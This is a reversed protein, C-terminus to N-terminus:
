QQMRRRDSHKILTDRFIEITLGNPCYGCTAGLKSVDRINRMENDIFVMSSIPLQLQNSIENLHSVKCVDGWGHAAAATWMNVVETRGCSFEALAAKAWDPEWTRSAYGIKIDSDVLEDFIFPIDKFLSVQRRRSCVVTHRSNNVRAFPPGGTCDVEGTWLTDDLDFVIVEPLSEIDDFM